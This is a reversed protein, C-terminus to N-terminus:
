SIVHTKIPDMIHSFPNWNDTINEHSNKIYFGFVRKNKILGISMFILQIVSALHRVYEDTFNTM